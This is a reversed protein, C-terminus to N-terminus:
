SEDADVFVSPLSDVRDFETRDLFRCRKRRWKCLCCKCSNSDMTLLHQTMEWMRTPLWLYHFYKLISDIREMLVIYVKNDFRIIFANKSFQSSMLNLLKSISTRKCKHAWTPREYRTKILLSNALM